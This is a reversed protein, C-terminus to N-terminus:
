TPLEGDDLHAEIWAPQALTGEGQDQAPLPQHRRDDDKGGEQHGGDGQPAIPRDPGLIHGRIGRPEAEVIQEEDRHGDHRARDDTAPDDVAEVKRPDVRGVDGGEEVRGTARERQEAGDDAPCEARGIDGPDQAATPGIPSAPQLHRRREQEEEDDAGLEALEEATAALAHGPGPLLRDGEEPGPGHCLM